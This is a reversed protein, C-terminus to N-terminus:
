ILTVAWQNRTNRERVNIFFKWTFYISSILSLICLEVPKSAVSIKFIVKKYVKVIAIDSIHVKKKILGIEV